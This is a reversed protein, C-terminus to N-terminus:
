TIVDIAFYNVKGHIVFLLTIKSFAKSNMYYSPVSCYVSSNCEANDTIESVCSTIRLHLVRARRRRHDVQRAREPVAAGRRRQRGQVVRRRGDGQARHGVM